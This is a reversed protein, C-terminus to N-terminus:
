EAQWAGSLLPKRASKNDQACLYVQAFYKDEPNIVGVGKPTGTMVIDGDELTMFSLLDRLIEDPKVMMLSVNGVQQEVGNIQLSLGLNDIDEPEINIFESFVASGDFAKAREWPLGKKKLQGQVERKTLDLGLAVATFRGAQYLFSLEAEYHLADENHSAYLKTSIASNPKLFVVMEDPMENNLEKIHEVYNRGICIVKSPSIEKCEQNLLKESSAFNAPLLKITKM